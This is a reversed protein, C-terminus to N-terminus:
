MQFRPGMWPSSQDIRYALITPWCALVFMSKTKSNLHNSNARKEPSQSERKPVDRLEFTPRKPAKLHPNTVAAVSSIGLVAALFGSFYM